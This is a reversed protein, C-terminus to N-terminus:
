NQKYDLNRLLKFLVIELILPQFRKCTKSQFRNNFFALYQEM